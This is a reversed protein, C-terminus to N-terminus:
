LYAMPISSVTDTIPLHTAAMCVIAGNGVNVGKVKKLAEFGSIDRKSPNSSKKIEIPYLIGNEEIVLDVENKDIDRYFWVNPNVGNNWYSKLIETIVYSELMPGSMAGLELTEPTRWGTLYCALGTDTFYVKPTKIARKTLNTFYPELLYIVGSTNLISVWSKITPQSVGVENSIESYNLIQANRAALVRMFKLFSLENAVLALTRIDQEIYTKLYSDYFGAWRESPAPYLKPFSGKWIKEFIKKLDSISTNKARSRIHEATPLFPPTNPHNEKEGQSLGQMHLIRARGALSESVNKMMHFQHSGTLWFMGPKQNEGDVISKIYPLLEPAYQIEDILVPVPFRQLFLGPDNKALYRNELIDLSVYNRTDSECEKLVTTKGVQRPGTLVLVPYFESERKILAEITRKIYM